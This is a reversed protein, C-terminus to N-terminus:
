REIMSLAQSNKFSYIIYSGFIVSVFFFVWCLSSVNKQPKKQPIQPASILTCQHFGDQISMNDLFTGEPYIVVSSKKSCSLLAPGIHYTSNTLIFHRCKMMEIFHMVETKGDRKGERIAKISIKLGCNRAFSFISQAFEADDTYVFVEYKSLDIKNALIRFANVYYEPKMAWESTKDEQRFSRFCVCVRPLSQVTPFRKRIVDIYPSFLKMNMCMGSVELDKNPDVYDPLNKYEFQGVSFVQRERGADAVPADSHFLSGIYCPSNVYGPSMTQDPLVLTRRLKNSISVVTVYQFFQNGLGGIFDKLLVAM